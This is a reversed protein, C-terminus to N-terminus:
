PRTSWETVPTLPQTAPLAAARLLAPADPLAFRDATSSPAM